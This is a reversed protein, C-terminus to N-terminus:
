RGRGYLKVPDLKRASMVNPNALSLERVKSKLKGYTDEHKLVLQDKVDGVDLMDGTLLTLTKSIDASDNRLDWMEFWARQLSRYENRAEARWARYEVEGTPQTDVLGKYRDESKLYQKSAVDLRGLNVQLKSLNSVAKKILQAQAKAQSPSLQKAAALSAMGQKGQFSSPNNVANNIGMGGAVAALAVLMTKIPGPRYHGGEFLLDLKMNLRSEFPGLAQAPRPSQPSFPQRQAGSERGAMRPTLEADEVEREKADKADKTVRVYEKFVDNAREISAELDGVEFGMSKLRALEAKSPLGGFLDDFGFLENLDNFNHRLPNDLNSLRSTVWNIGTSISKTARNVLFKLPNAIPGATLASGGPVLRTDLKWLSNPSSWSDIKMTPSINLLEGNPLTVRWSGSLISSKIIQPVSDEGNKNIYDRLSQGVDHVECNNAKAWNFFEELSDRKLFSQAGTEEHGGTFQKYLPSKSFSQMIDTTEVFKDLYDTFNDYSGGGGGPFFNIEYTRPGGFGALKGLGGTLAGLVQEPPSAAVAGAKGLFKLFERRTMKGDRIRAKVEKEAEKEAEKLILLQPATCKVM